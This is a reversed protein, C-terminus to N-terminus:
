PKMAFRFGLVVIALGVLQTYSPIEGLVIFGIVMTLGPVLAPFTSARGAGLATVARAFLFLALLGAFIGQVAVQILNETWGAAIM